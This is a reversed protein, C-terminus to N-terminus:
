RFMQQIEKRLSALARRAAHLRGLADKSKRARGPAKAPDCGVVRRDGGVSEYISYDAFQPNEGHTGSNHETCEEMKAMKGAKEQLRQLKTPAANIAALATFSENQSQQMSNISAM